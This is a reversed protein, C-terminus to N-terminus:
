ALPGKSTSDDIVERALKITVAGGRALAIRDLADVAAAAAAFSREIRPVLYDIVEVRVKIQRDSFHKVLLAALLADDPPEVAVAPVGALRSALDRLEVPWRAPAARDLLLLSGGQARVHNILHFLEEEPLRLGDLILSGAEPLREGLAAELFRAGSRAQWVYALHSKGCGAPGYIALVAGPWDPWRDLWAVADRNSASVVFDAAGMAPRVPLDLPLQRATM